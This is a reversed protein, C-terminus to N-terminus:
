ELPHANEPSLYHARLLSASERDRGLRYYLHQTSTNPEVHLVANGLFLHERAIKRSQVRLEINASRVLLSGASISVLLVSKSHVANGDNPCSLVRVLYYRAGMGALSRSDAYSGLLGLSNVFSSFGHDFGSITTKYDM